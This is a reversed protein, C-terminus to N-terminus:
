MPTSSSSSGTTMSRPRPPMSAISTIGGYQEIISNKATIYTYNSLFLDPTVVQARTYQLISSSNFSMISRDLAQTIMSFISSAM